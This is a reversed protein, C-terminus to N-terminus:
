MRGLVALAGLATLVGFLWHIRFTVMVGLVAGVISGFFRYLQIHDRSHDDQQREYENCAAAAQHTLGFGSHSMKQHRAGTFALLVFEIGLVLSM